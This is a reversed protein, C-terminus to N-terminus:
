QIDLSRMEQTHLHHVTLLAHVAQPLHLPCFLRQRTQLTHKRGAKRRGVSWVCSEFGVAVLEMQLSDRHPYVCVILHDNQPM